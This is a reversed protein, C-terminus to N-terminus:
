EFRKFESYKHGLLTYRKENLVTKVKEPAKLIGALNIKAISQDVLAPTVDESFKLGGLVKIELKKGKATITELEKASYNALGIVLDREIDLEQFTADHLKLQSKIAKNLFDSSNPYLGKEILVDIKARMEPNLELLVRNKPNKTM